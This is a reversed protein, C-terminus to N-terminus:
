GLPLDVLSRPDHGGVVIGPNLLGDPDFARKVAEFRAQLDPGLARALLHSRSLGWGHEGTLSGGWEGVLDCVAEAADLLRDPLRADAPDCLPRVHLCGAAAHGYVIAEFGFLGLLELLADCFAGAREPPVAPDEFCALPIRGGATPGRSVLEVARGRLEWALEADDGSLGVAQEAGAAGARVRDAGRDAADDLFEVILAAETGADLADLGSARTAELLRADLVEVASAGGAAVGPAADLAARLSGFAAIALSRREPRPLTALRARCLLCLTGESGPVLSLADRHQELAPLRYGGPDRPQRPWEGLAEDLGEVAAALGGRLTEPVEGRRLTVESGDALVVEAELLADAFRGYLMSRSGCANTGVLGGVRASRSSIVDPGIMRGQPALAANLEDLTEGAGCWVSGDGVPEIGRLGSVDVILGSGLCQGAVSSGGARATVPVGSEGAARVAAAVEGADRAALVAAPRRRFPSQDRAYRELAEDDLRLELGELSRALAEIREREARM